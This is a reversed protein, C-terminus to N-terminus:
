LLKIDRPKGVSDIILADFLRIVNEEPYDEPMRMWWALIEFVGSTVFPVALDAPLWPNARGRTATIERAARMFEERMAPAAGGNLLTKWLRRHAQVYDCLAQGSEEQPPQVIANQGLNLLKRIEEAAIHNLLDDKGSFRRFFTPYSVGAEDTIDRITIEELSRRELLALFASSLLEISRQVRADDPKSPTTTRPRAM